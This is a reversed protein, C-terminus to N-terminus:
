HISCLTVPCGECNLEEKLFNINHISIYKNKISIVQNKRLDSLLRNINERSTGCFNALEQNTLALNIFIRDSKKEGYSNALRILMSYLAGKKGYMVLDVLKMNDRLANESIENMLYTALRADHKMLHNLKHKDIGVVRSKRFAVAHFIHKQGHNSFLTSDGILDGAKCLRLSFERGDAIPQSIVIKGSKIFYLYNIMDGPIFLSEDKELTKDYNVHELLLQKIPEFPDPAKMQTM